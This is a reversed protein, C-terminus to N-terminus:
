CREKCNAQFITYIESCPSDAVVVTLIQHVICSITLTMHLPCFKILSITKRNKPNWVRRDVLSTWPLELFYRLYKWFPLPLKLFVEFYFTFPLVQIGLVKKLLLYFTFPIKFIRTKKIKKGIPNFLSRVTLAIVIIKCVAM